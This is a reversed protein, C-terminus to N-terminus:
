RASRVLLDLEVADVDRDPLLARGDRLEHLHQFLLAREVVRDHDGRGRGIRRRHLIERREGAAGHALVEAVVAHVGHDDVVIERLLGDRVALHRQQQAARRAAFGIRAVHEIQVRAQELAGGLHAVGRAGARERRQRHDLRLRVVHRGVNRGVHNRDGVPLDEELGVQEILADTRRHVDAERHRADARRRLGLRHLLDGAADLALKRLVALHRRERLEAGVEVRRRLAQQRAARAQGLQQLLRLERRELHFLLGAHDVGAHVAIEIRDRDVAHAGELVPDQLTSRVLCASMRSSMRM